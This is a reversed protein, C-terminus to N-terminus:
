NLKKITGSVWSILRNILLSNGFHPPPLDVGNMEVICLYM